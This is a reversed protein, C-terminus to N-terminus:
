NECRYWAENIMEALSTLGPLFGDDLDKYFPYFATHSVGTEGYESSVSVFGQYTNMIKLLYNHGKVVIVREVIKQSENYIFTRAIKVVMKAYERDSLMGEVCIDAAYGELFEVLSETNAELMREIEDTSM